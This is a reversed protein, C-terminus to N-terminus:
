ERGGPLRLVREVPERVQDVADRPQREHPPERRRKKAAVERMRAVRPAEDPGRQAQDVREAPLVETVTDSVPTPASVRTDTRTTSREHRHRKPTQCRSM